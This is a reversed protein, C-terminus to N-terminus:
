LFLMARQGTVMDAWAQLAKSRDDLRHAKNYVASVISPRSSTAKHNQIRDVVGEDFGAEVLSTAQSRRFDHLVWHEMDGLGRLKRERNIVADLRSKAKTVGSSPSTGTTSFVFDCNPITATKRLGELEHLAQRSLSVIHASRNKPDPVEYRMRDLDVWSWRLALVDTRSRQGTLICLRLFPGWLPGLNFSGTWIEQVESLTPTRQRPQERNPRELRVGIIENIYGRRYSWNTLASLAARLRNAMVMKGAARKDDIINQVLDHSLDSSPQEYYPELANRLQRERERQSPGPKLFTRIHKEIYQEVLDSILMQSKLRAAEQALAQKAQLIRDIGQAAEIDLKLAELRAEALSTQPYNGIKQGRRKGGKIKKQVIWSANRAPSLRFCLGVRLTDRIEIRRNADPELTKLLRDTLKRQM